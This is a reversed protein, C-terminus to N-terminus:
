VFKEKADKALTRLKNKKAFNPLTTACAWNPWYIDLGSSLKIQPHQLEPLNQWAMCEILNDNAWKVTDIDNKVSLYIADHIHAVPLIDYKYKSKLCREQFEIGARTTLLGYSQGSVANGASRREALANFATYSPDCLTQALIPTRLRLGFACTVYGEEVAKDLKDSVWQDAIAYLRHYSAEIYKSQKEGFGCNNMLTKFTGGYQLAFSIPKSDQRLTPYKVAISNIIIAAENKTVTSTTEEDFFGKLETTIDLMQEQFYFYSALCHNDFNDTYVSLKKPDHTILANIKSELSAFDSGCFLWGNASIFCAKILKGYVSTAPLNQLNPDSSSLRGSKTGGLNFNGYLRYSGDPLQPAALFAPIFSTLIKDALAFDILNQFIEKHTDNKAHNILKKLTKAGTAPAKSKTFDIPEYGWYDYILKQLQVDSNPNFDFQVVSDHITYIKQKAKATAQAAKLHLQEEHFEQIVGSGRFFAQQKNVMALLQAKAKLVQDMDIPMGCLEMQIITKLAPRFLEKYITEQNEGIIVPYYKDYVYWTCLCDKLNYELLEQTPIMAVNDINEQGYNGAYEHALVKLSLLTEVTNNLALYAILKTDEINKILIELGDIMGVYDQLHKMYLQYLLVKIDFSANHYILTGKYSAFFDCLLQRIELSYEHRDIVFSIGEHKNWAFSISQLGCNYFKLGKTEIDCTLKKHHKLSKLVARISRIATPYLAHKIIDKGPEEYTGAICTLLTQLSLDIKVQLGPNYNLAQYNPILIVKLHEFTPIACDHTYGYAGTTKALKTLYKFYISDAVLIIQIKCKVLEPLLESLYEKAHAASCKKPTQYSLDFALIDKLAVGTDKTLIDVYARTLQSKNFATSKSLIAIKATTQKPAFQIYQM